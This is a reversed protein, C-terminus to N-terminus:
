KEKTILWNALREPLFFGLYYEIASLILVFRVIALLIPTRPIVADFFAGFSFSIFAILLFKGKLKIKLDESKMSQKAFLIGTILATIIGIVQISVAFLTRRSYFISEQTAILQPNIFLFIFFVIEYLICIILYIPLIIRKLHPYALICFSYIWCILAVAIFANALFMYLVPEIAYNFFIIFLFSLSVSWWASTLFIWALGVAIYEKRNLPFAKLLIKIGIVLSIIVFILAFSGHIIEYTTLDKLNVYM